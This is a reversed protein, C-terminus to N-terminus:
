ASSSHPLGATTPGVAVATTTSSRIVKILIRWSKMFKNQCKTRKEFRWSTLQEEVTKHIQTLLVFDRQIGEETFVRLLAQAENDTQKEQWFLSFSTSIFCLNCTHLVIKRFNWNRLDYINGLSYFCPRTRSYISLFITVSLARNKLRAYQNINIVLCITREDVHNAM